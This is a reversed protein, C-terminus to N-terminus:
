PKAAKPTSIPRPTDIKHTIRSLFSIDHDSTGFTSSTSWHRISSLLISKHLREQLIDSMPGDCRSTSSCTYTSKHLIAYSTSIISTTSTTKHERLNSITIQIRTNCNEETLISTRIWSKHNNCNYRLQFVDHCCIQPAKCPHPNYVYIGMSGQRCAASISM